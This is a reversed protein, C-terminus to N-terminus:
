NYIIINDRDVSHHPAHLKFSLPTPVLGQSPINEDYGVLYRIKLTTNMPVEGYNVNKILINPNILGDKEYNYFNSLINLNTQDMNSDNSIGFHIYTNDSYDLRKIYRSNTNITHYARTGDPYYQSIPVQNVALFPVKHWTRGNSDM